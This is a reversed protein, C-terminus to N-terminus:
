RLAAIPGAGALFVLLGAAMLAVHILTVTGIAQDRKRHGGRYVWRLYVAEIGPAIALSVIGSAALAVLALGFENPPLVRTYLPLLLVASAKSFVRPLAYWMMNTRASPVAQASM